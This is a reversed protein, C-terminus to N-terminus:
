ENKIALVLTLSLSSMGHTRLVNITRQPALRYIGREGLRSGRGGAEEEKGGGWLGEKRTDRDEKGEERVRGGGEEGGGRGLGEDRSGERRGRRM